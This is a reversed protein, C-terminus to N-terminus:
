DDEQIGSSGNQVHEDVLETGEHDASVDGLSTVGENGESVNWNSTAESSNASEAELTEDTEGESDLADTPFLRNLVTEVEVNTKWSHDLVFSLIPTQKTMLREAVKSQLFGRAANLGKMSLAQRREDGMVSVFVKAQRLDETVDAGLVTVNKVRPDKVKFLVAESVAEQIARNVRATRRTAMSDQFIGRYIDANGNNRLRQFIIVM